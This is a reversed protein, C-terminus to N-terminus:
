KLNIGKHFVKDHLLVISQMEFLNVHILVTYDLSIINMMSPPFEWCSDIIRCCNLAFLYLGYTQGLVFLELLIIITQHPDLLLHMLGHHHLICRSLMLTVLPYSLIRM